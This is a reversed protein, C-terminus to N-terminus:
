GASFLCLRPYTTIPVILGAPRGVIVGRFSPSAVGLAGADRRGVNGRSEGTRATLACTKPTRLLAEEFSRVADTPKGAEVLIEGYLEMVPKMPM